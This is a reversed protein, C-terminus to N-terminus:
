PPPALEGRAFFRELRDEEGQIEVAREREDGPNYIFAGEDKIVLLDHAFSNGPGAATRGAITVLEGRRVELAVGALITRTGDGDPVAVEVDDLELAAPRGAAPQPTPATM